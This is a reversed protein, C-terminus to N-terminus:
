SPRKVLVQQLIQEFVHVEQAGTIINNEDFVFYPVGTINLKRALSLDQKVEDVYTSADNLLHLVEKSNLGVDNAVQLLVNLDSIDEGNFFFAQFLRRNTPIAKGTKEAYKFLRHALFSNTPKIADFNFKLGIEYGLKEIHQSIQKAREKSGFKESLEEYYTRGNYTPAHPDLQFSKLKISVNENQGLNELAIELRRVGIYCFPCVFDSWIEIKM